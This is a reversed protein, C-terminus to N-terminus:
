LKHSINRVPQGHFGEVNAAALHANENAACYSYDPAHSLDHFLTHFVFYKFVVTYKLSKQECISYIYLFLTHIKINNVYM